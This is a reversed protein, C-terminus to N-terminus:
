HQSPPGNSTALPSPTEVGGEAATSFRRLLWRLRAEPPSVSCPATRSPRHDRRTTRLLWRAEARRPAVTLWGSFVPFLPALAASRWSIEVRIGAQSRESAGLDVFAGRHVTSLLGRDDPHLHMDVAFRRMGAPPDRGADLSDRRRRRSATCSGCRCNPGARHRAVPGRRAARWEDDGVMSRSWLGVGMLWSRSTTAGIAIAVRLM